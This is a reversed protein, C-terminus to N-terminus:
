CGVYECEVYEPEVYCNDECDREENEAWIEVYSVDCDIASSLYIHQVFGYDTSPMFGKELSIDDKNIDKLQQYVAFGQTEPDFGLINNYLSISFPYGVYYEPEDFVTLFKALNIGTEGFKFYATDWEKMINNEERIPQLVANNYQYPRKDESYSRTVNKWVERYRIWFFGCGTLDQECVGSYSLDIDKEILNRLLSSVNIEVAGTPSPKASILVDSRYIAYSGYQLTAQVEYNQKTYNLFGGTTDETWLIDTIIFTTGLFGTIKGSVDYNGSSIYIGMNEELDSISAVEVVAYDGSVLSRGIAVISMDERQLNWIVANKLANVYGGWFTGQFDTTGYLAPRDIVRLM